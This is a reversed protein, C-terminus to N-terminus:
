AARRATRARAAAYPHYFAVLADSRAPEIVFSDGDHENRVHVFVGDDAPCWWLRVAIGGSERYALERLQPTQQRRPKSLPPTHTCTPM